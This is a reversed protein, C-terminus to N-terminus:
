ATIKPELLDTSASSSLIFTNISAFGRSVIRRIMSLNCKAFEVTWLLIVMWLLFATKLKSQTFLFDSESCGLIDGIYCNYSPFWSKRVYECALGMVSIYLYSDGIEKSQQKIFGMIAKAKTTM